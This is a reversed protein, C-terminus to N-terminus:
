IFVKCFIIFIVENEQSRPTHTGIDNHQRRASPSAYGSSYNTSKKVPKRVSILLSSTQVSLSTHTHKNLPVSTYTPACHRACQTLHRGSPYPHRLNPKVQFLQSGVPGGLCEFPFGRVKLPCVARGKDM